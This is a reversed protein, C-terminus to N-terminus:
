GELCWYCGNERRMGVSYKTSTSGDRHHVTREDYDQVRREKLYSEDSVPILGDKLVPTYTCRCKWHLPVQPKAEDAKFFKGDSAGCVLCTRKDLTASYIWDMLDDEYHENIFYEKSYNDASFCITSALGKLGPRRGELIAKRYISAIEDVTNNNLKGLWELITLGDTTVNESWMRSSLNQLM